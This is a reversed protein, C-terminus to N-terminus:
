RYAILVLDTNQYIASFYIMLLFICENRTGTKFESLVLPDPSFDSFIPWTMVPRARVSIEICKKKEKSRAPGLRSQLWAPLALDPGYLSRGQVRSTEVIYM